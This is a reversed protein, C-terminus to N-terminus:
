GEKAQRTQVTVKKLGSWFGRCVVSHNCPTTNHLTPVLRWVKMKNRSNHCHELSQVVYGHAVLLALAKRISKSTGIDGLSHWEHEKRLLARAITYGADSMALAHMEEGRKKARSLVQEKYGPMFLNPYKIPEGDVVVYFHHCVNCFLAVLRGGRNFVPELLPHENYSDYKKGHFRDHSYHMCRLAYLEKETM